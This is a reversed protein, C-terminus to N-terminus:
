KLAVEKEVRGHEEGGAGAKDGDPPLHQLPDAVHLMGRM